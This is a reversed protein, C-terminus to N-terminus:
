LSRHARASYYGLWIIRRELAGVWKSGQSSSLMQWLIVYYVRVGKVRKRKESFGVGLSHACKPRATLHPTGPLWANVPPPNQDGWGVRVGDLM